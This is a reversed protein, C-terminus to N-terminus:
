LVKIAQRIFNMIIYKNLVHSLHYLFQSYIWDEADDDEEEGASGNMNNEDDGAGDGADEEEDDDGAVEANEAEAREMQRALEAEDTATVM